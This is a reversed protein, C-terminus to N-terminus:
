RFSDSTISKFRNIPIDLGRRREIEHRTGFRINIFYSDSNNSIICDSSRNSLRSRLNKHVVDHNYDRTKYRDIGLSSM